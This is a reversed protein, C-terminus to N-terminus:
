FIVNFETSKVFDAPSVGEKGAPVKQNYNRFYQVWYRYYKTYVMKKTKMQFSNGLWDQFLKYIFESCYYMNEHHEDKNDWLFHPDYKKGIYKELNQYFDRSNIRKNILSKHRLVTMPNQSNLRKDQFFETVTKMQVGASGWSEVLFLHNQPNRYVVALHSYPKGEELEILSCVWCDLSLLVIDGTKLKHWPISENSYVLSSFYFSLLILLKRM